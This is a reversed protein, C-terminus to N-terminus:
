LNKNSSRIKRAVNLCCSLLHIFCWVQALAGKSDVISVNSILNEWMQVTKDLRFFARLSWQLFYDIPLDINITPQKMETRFSVALPM